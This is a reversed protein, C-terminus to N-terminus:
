FYRVLVEVVEILVGVLVVEAVEVILEVVEAPKPHFVCVYL